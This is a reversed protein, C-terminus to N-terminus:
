KKANKRRKARPAVNATGAGTREALLVPRSDGIDMADPALAATDAADPATALAPPDVEAPALAVTTTPMSRHVANRFTPAGQGMGHRVYLNAYPLAAARKARVGTPRSFLAAAADNIAGYKVAARVAADFERTNKSSRMASLAVKQMPKLASASVGDCLKSSPLAGSALRADAYVRGVTDYARNMYTRGSRTSMDWAPSYAVGCTGAVRNLATNFETHNSAVFM